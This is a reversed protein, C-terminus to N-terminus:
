VKACESSLAKAKGQLSQVSSLWANVDGRSVRQLDRPCWCCSPLLERMFRQTARRKALRKSHVDLKRVYRLETCDLGPAAAQQRKWSRLRARKVM